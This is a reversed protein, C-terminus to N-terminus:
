DLSYKFPTWEPLIVKYLKQEEINISKLSKGSM